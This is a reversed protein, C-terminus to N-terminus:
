PSFRQRSLEMPRDASSFPRLRISYSNVPSRPKSAPTVLVVLDSGATATEIRADLQEWRIDLRTYSGDHAHPGPRIQEIGDGSRGILAEALYQEDLWYHQKFALNLAFGEPLLVHSLVSWM